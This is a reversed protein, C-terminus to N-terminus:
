GWTEYVLYRDRAQDAIEALLAKTPAPLVLDDWAARPEIRQALGELRPRTARVCARWLPAPTSESAAPEAAHQIEGLGLDFQGALRAAVAPDAGALECWAARQEDITPRGIDVIQAA